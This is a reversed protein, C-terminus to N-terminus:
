FNESIVLIWTKPNAVDRELATRMQTIARRSHVVGVNSTELGPLICADSEEIRNGAHVEVDYRKGHPKSWDGGAVRGELVSEIVWHKFRGTNDPRLFYAGAEIPKDELTHVSSGDPLYLVGRAGTQFRRTRVLYLISSGLERLTAM